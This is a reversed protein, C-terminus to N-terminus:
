TIEPNIIKCFEFIWFNLSSIEFRPVPKVQIVGCCGGGHFIVRFGQLGHRQRALNSVVSSKGFSRTVVICGPGTLRLESPSVEPRIMKWLEDFRSEARPGTEIPISVTGRPLVHDLDEFGQARTLPKNGSLERVRDISRDFENANRDVSATLTPEPWSRIRLHDQTMEIQM